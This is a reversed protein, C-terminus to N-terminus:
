GRLVPVPMLLAEKEGLVLGMGACCPSPEHFLEVLAM